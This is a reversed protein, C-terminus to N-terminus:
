RIRSIQGYVLDGVKIDFCKVPFKNEVFYKDSKCKIVGVVSAFVYDKYLYLGQQLEEQNYKALKQGVQVRKDIFDKM